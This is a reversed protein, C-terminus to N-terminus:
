LFKIESNIVEVRRDGYVLNIAKGLISEAHKKENSVTVGYFHRGLKTTADRHLTLNKSKHIAEGVPNEFSPIYGPTSNTGSPFGM